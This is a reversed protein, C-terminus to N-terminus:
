IIPLAGETVSDATLAPSLLSGSIDGTMSNMRIRGGGGGGGGANYLGPDSDCAPADAGVNGGGGNGDAGACAYGSTTAGGQAATQEGIHGDEGPDGDWRAGGGAGGGGNTTIAGAIILEGSGGGGGAQNSGWSPWGGCGGTDVWGNITLTGGSVIMVAGGSRGGLGGDDTPDSGMGGGSGGILPILEDTGYTTGPTGRQSPEYGGGTGGAGGFGGGGGGGDRDGSSAGVPSGDGGAGPGGGAEGAGGYPEGETWICGGFIGGDIVADEESLLVMPLTGNIGLTYNDPVNLAQFSFVGLEPLDTGQDVTTFSIGSGADLGLDAPRLEAQHEWRDTVWAYLDMQGNDTNMDLWYDTDTDSPWPDGTPTDGATLISDDPLNSIDWERCHAGGEESCGLPCDTSVWASDVCEELATGDSSCRLEGDTCPGDTTPDETPDTTPDETPDTTPDETPDETSDTTGDTVTTDDTTDEDGDGANKISGGCGIALLAPLVVALLKRQMGM